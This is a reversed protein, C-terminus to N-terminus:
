YTLVMPVMSRRSRTCRRCGGSGRRCGPSKGIADDGRQLLLLGARRRRAARPRAAGPRPPQHRGEAGAHARRELRRQRRRRFAPRLRLRRRGARGAPHAGAHARDRRDRGGSWVLAVARRFRRWPARRARRRAPTLLLRNNAEDGGEAGSWRASLVGPMGNLADVCIGSDDALSPLGTAAFCARAKIFPMARSRRNPRPRSTSRPSTTSVSCRSGPLVLPELVRRLEALKKPNRSALLVRRPTM